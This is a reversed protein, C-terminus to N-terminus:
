NSSVSLDKQLLMDQPKIGYLTALKILVSIPPESEGNEYNWIQQRSVGIAKAVASQSRLGRAQKLRVLDLSNDM